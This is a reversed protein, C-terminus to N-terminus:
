FFKNFNKNFELKAWLSFIVRTLINNKMYISQYTKTGDMADLVFINNPSFCALLKLNLIIRTTVM